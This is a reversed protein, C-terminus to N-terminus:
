RILVSIFIQQFYQNNIELIEFLNKITDHDCTASIKVHVLCLFVILKVKFLSGYMIRFTVMIVYYEKM